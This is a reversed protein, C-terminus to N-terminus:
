TGYADMDFSAFSIFNTATKVTFYTPTNASPLCKHWFFLYYNLVPRPEDSKDLV